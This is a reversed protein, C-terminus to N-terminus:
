EREDLLLSHLGCLGSSSGRRWSFTFDRSLSQDKARFGFSPKKICPAHQSVKKHPLNPQRVRTPKRIPLHPLPQTAMKVLSQMVVCSMLADSV